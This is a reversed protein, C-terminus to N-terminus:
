RGARCSPSQRYLTISGVLCREGVHCDTRCFNGGGGGVCVCPRLGRGQCNRARFAVKVSLWRLAKDENLRVASQGGGFEPAACAACPCVRTRQARGACAVRAGAACRERRVGGDRRGQAARRRAAVGGGDAAARPPQLLRARARASPSACLDPGRADRHLHFWRRRRRVSSGDVSAARGGGARVCARWM